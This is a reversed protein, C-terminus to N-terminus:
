VMEHFRGQEVHFLKHSQWDAVTVLGEEVMTVFVQGGTRALLGLFRGRNEEDLESALDDVLMVPTKGGHGTMAKVQALEVGGVFLKAQGRSLAEEALMGGIRFELDARHPGVTTRGEARDRSQARGLAEELSENSGWGRKLRVSVPLDLLTGMVEKLAGGMGAVYSERMRTLAEGASLVEQDWGTLGHKPGWGRLAANRQQVARGYRQLVELYGPEVHFLGWDLVRRREKPGGSLLRHSEPTVLALGMEQALGSSSEVARGGVRVRMGRKGREVGVGVRSGNERVVEGFVRLNEAGRRVLVDLRRSRFSRGTGLIHIAELLSTKGSGNAGQIVNLHCAPVLRVGELIRVNEVVLRSLYM